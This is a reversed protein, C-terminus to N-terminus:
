DGFEARSRAHLPHAPDTRGLLRDARGVATRGPDRATVRHVHQPRRPEPRVRDPGRRPKRPLGRRGARPLLGSPRGSLVDPLVDATLRGAHALGILLQGLDFGVALPGHFSWDIVVFTDPESAPVLLNQPSADGHSSHREQGGDPTLALTGCPRYIPKPHSVPVQLQIEDHTTHPRRRQAMSDRGARLFAHLKTSDGCM